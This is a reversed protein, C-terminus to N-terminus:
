RQMHKHIDRDRERDGDRERDRYRQREWTCSPEVEQDERVVPPLEALELEQMITTRCGPECM